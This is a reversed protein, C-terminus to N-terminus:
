WKWNPILFGPIHWKSDSRKWVDHKRFGELIRDFEELSLGAYRCFSEIDKTPRQDGSQQIISIADSRSLRGNRIELSLNDFLRTFGFKYWKIYHHISIFDDDIDAFDYLGTRPGSRDRTFGYQEAVSVSTAVDWEFFSGLFLGRVSQASDNRVQPAQYIALDRSSLDESVWDAATTGHTVGYKAVWEANLEFAFADSGSAGYETASNEGWLVLPIDFQIAVRLPINFIAMHMPIAPTGFRKLSAVMFAKEVRPSVSFDIHDIGLNILNRLNEEGIETRGPTRWTVALPKLGYELAKVVQWTSDKGGSVPIVCDYDRGLAQTEKVIRRFDDALSAWDM